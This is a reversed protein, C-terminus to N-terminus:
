DDDFIGCNPHLAYSVKSSTTAADHDQDQDQDDDVLGEGRIPIIVNDKVMRKLVKKALSREANLEDENSISEEVQELYWVLLEDHEPGEGTRDEEDRIHSALMNQIQHYKEFTIKTTVRGSPAAPTGAARRQRHQDEDHTQEGEEVMPSDRDRHAEERQASAPEEDDDEVDVDDKEVTIISQKLLDFAELVMPVTIDEVCNAKAIAESLRILSELQRVTIRYSNRGLGGADNARLEKYKQVLLNMAEPTFKPKFTRAFRIYRQLQETSFEPQVFDDKLMHLNVIHEALHRDVNENCEDLVVFFLDFRSMIPASMNINARLTTKRNYRGGIPNAAALISTRANLTAHIGAKAISITQQEMAEHIAVQDHIDMKDFEDICCTGSDSLMLAGAEITHEGTEEDRVVAATLGAASSAKGSTYVARPQFSSIYKLFQSKSTSPDGVICINIDGRLAMGEPTKKSVGGLLQLLLGKKIIEHGYVMPAISQVLRSYIKDSHVMYKLDEIEEHTLTELYAEQAREGSDYQDFLDTQHLSNLINTSQGNLQNATQGPTTTDPCSFCALFAMRYTLDRVGLAKLGTVGAGGADAGRFNRNDKSAEPRVGPIGLQSVDPVVILTGSFICKEGPKTREVQEGRLIVDMTRPMSGTPIESSNEQIRCRQWDVFTSNRIDLRWAVKNGCTLNPCVNPETYRFTQEVNPVTTNCAECIFTGLALEPRVESTRTVTGSISLLKGIQDTRLQRVRSVLPLNYFALTFLKDTQQNLTMEGQSNTESTANGAMSTGSQSANSTMQRHDKFYIPEYKALLNHLAKTLFPLFRYYQSAIADALIPGEKYSLLHRYDVYLTSLQFERLGHIQNIYYKDTKLESSPPLASSSPEEIHSELFDEFAQQVREGARDAVQSVNRDLPNRNRGRAVGVVEDDPFIDAESPLGNSESPPPRPRSSSLINNQTRRPSSPTAGFADSNLISDVLNSM